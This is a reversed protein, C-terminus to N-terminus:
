EEIWTFSPFALSAVRKSFDKRWFSGRSETRQLMTTVMLKACILMHQAQITEAIDRPKTSPAKTAILQKHLNGLETLAYIMSANDKLLMCNAYMVEQLSQIIAPAQASASLALRAGDIVCTQEDGLTRLHLRERHADNTHTLHAKKAWQAAERGAIQGFVMCNASSLGGIRDAGHMGASIEGAAFLGQLAHECFSKTHCSTDIALGGNSAHAYLALKLYDNTDIHAKKMQDFVMQVFEFHKGELKTYRAYSIDADAHTCAGLNRKKYAGVLALDVLKSSLRSTFPGHMSRMELLRAQSEKDGIYLPHKNCDYLTAYRYTKENFVFPERASIITPMIQMFELNSAYMLHSIGIAHAVGYGTHSAFSKSFLGSTGGCALVISSAQVYILREHQTDALLAGRVQRNHTDKTYNLGEVLPPTDTTCTCRFRWDWVDQAVTTQNTEIIDLLQTYSLELIDFEQMRRRLTHIYPAQRLGRWTRTHKDFCPIYAKEEAHKPSILRVGLQEVEHIAQPIHEVFFKAFDYQVCGQGVDTITQALDDVDSADRPAVVGLGWTNKSFSLGSFIHSASAIAVKAGSQAATLAAQTGALGAGVVLVDVQKFDIDM